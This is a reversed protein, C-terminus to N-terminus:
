EPSFKPQKLVSIKSYGRNISKVRIGRLGRIEGGLRELFAGPKKVFSKKRLWRYFGNKKTYILSANTKTLTRRPAKANRRIAM